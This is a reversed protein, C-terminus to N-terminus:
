KRLGLFCGHSGQFPDRVEGLIARVAPSKRMRRGLWRRAELRPHSAGSRFDDALSLDTDPAFAVLESIGFRAPHAHMPSRRPLNLIALNLDHIAAANQEVFALTLERDADSEGPLGFLLYVLNRIGAAATAQLVAAALEPGAGKGLKELMPGSASEVGLQLMVCGGAALEAAFGPDALAAEVRVFGHWRLPLRRERITRAVLALHPVALASDCLHLVAGDPFRAAVSELWAVVAAAGAAAHRPHLHDPCFTCRRWSCGRGLSAPVRPWPSLYADWAVADLEVSAVEPPAGGGGGLGAALEAMGAPSGDGLV